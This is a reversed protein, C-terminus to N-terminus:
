FDSSCEVLRRRDRRIAFEGPLIQGFASTQSRRRAAPQLARANGNSGAMSGESAVRGRDMKGATQLAPQRNDVGSPCCCRASVLAGPKKM